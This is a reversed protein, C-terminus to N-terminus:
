TLFLHCLLNESKSSSLCLATPDLHRFAKCVQALGRALERTSMHLAVQRWVEMSLPVCLDSKLSLRSVAETATVPM